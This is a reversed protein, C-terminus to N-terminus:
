EDDKLLPSVVASIKYHVNILKIKGGSLDQSTTLKFPPLSKLYDIPDGTAQLIKM